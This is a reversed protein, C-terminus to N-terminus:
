LLKPGSDDLSLFREALAEVIDWITLPRRAHPLQERSYSDLAGVKSLKPDIFKSMNSITFGLVELWSNVTLAFLEIGQRQVIVLM